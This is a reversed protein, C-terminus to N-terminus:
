APHASRWLKRPLLGLSIIVLQSLMFLSLWKFGGEMFGYSHLGVGLMNVGFWSFSTVMNGFIAMNALGHEGVLGARHAHLLLANWLVVMLAGNEKPDWGWFRGWARDAWLGGLVTGLFSFLLAFCVTGYVMKALAEGLERPPQFDREAHGTEPGARSQVDLVATAQVRLGLLPTLLRLLVYGIGLLGAMFMAGYGLTITVVHAALWFNTDLVARLAEMTDGGLAINHAIILTTFGVFAGAAGAIGLRWVRELLLGLLVAVWGVFVASSYLNTVPPRHEIWMRLALGSTHVVFALVALWVASRRLSEAVNPWAGGVLMAIAAVLFSVLYMKLAVWFAQLANYFSETKAKACATAANTALWTHYQQLANNFEAPNQQRYATAMKALWKVPPALESKGTAAEVLAQGVNRWNDAPEGPKPPVFLVPAVRAMQQYRSVFRMFRDLAPGDFQAGTSRARLAATGPSISQQFEALEAAFETTDEPQLANKLRQYSAVANFLRLVQRQYATRKYPEIGSAQNAELELQALVHRLENFSFYFLGGRRRGMGRLGFADLVEPHHILFIRRTDAVAPNMLAEALWATATLKQTRRVSRTTQPEALLVTTTGSIQRLVNRALTDIPQLRGNFVVPVRGFQRYRFDSEAAPILGVILQAGFAATLAWPVLKLLRNKGACGSPRTREADCVNRAANEAKSMPARMGLFRVLHSMFQAVLGLGVMACAVYPTPWTPNRVVQLITVSPDAPDYGAQYFTEAGYRLPSNMKILVERAEGTEPRVVRVRSSFHRPIQSGPYTEHSFKILQLWFPKYFRRLRLSLQWTRGNVEVSQTHRIYESVLWTGLSGAPTLLEIVAAPVNRRESGAAPPEERFWLETGIGRTAPSKEFGPLAQASVRANALYRVVRITFPLEPHSISNRPRPRAGDPRDTPKTKAVRALISDPIAVVKDTAPDSVDIVALETLRASESYNKMEGEALRMHSEVTGIDAAFQGLLLLGLGGHTLLMGLKNRATKLRLIQAVVLNVLLVGGILYGGPFVPIKLAPQDPPSWFVIFSRFFEAQVRYLGLEVQALTGAFVLVIACALCAVTLKLSGFFRLSSKLLPNM